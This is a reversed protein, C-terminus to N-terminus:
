PKTLVPKAEVLKTAPLKKLNPNLRYHLIKSAQYSVKYRQAIELREGTKPNRAKKSQRLKIKWSGLPRLIVQHGAILQQNIEKIFCRVVLDIQEKSLNKHREMLQLLLASRKLTEGVASCNIGTTNITANKTVNKSLNEPSNELKIELKPELKASTLSNSTATSDASGNAGSRNAHNNTAQM